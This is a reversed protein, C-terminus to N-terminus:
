PLHCVSYKHQLILHIAILLQNFLFQSSRLVFPLCTDIYYNDRWCIWLLNWDNPHVPILHFANKLDIKSMLAGTGQLNVVAYANDM